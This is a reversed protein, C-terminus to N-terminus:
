TSINKTHNHPIKTGNTQSGKIDQSARFSERLVIDAEYRSGGKIPDFYLTMKGRHRGQGIKPNEVVTGRGSLFSAMQKRDLNQGYTIRDIPLRTIDAIVLQNTYDTDKESKQLDLKALKTRELGSKSRTKYLVSGGSRLKERDDMSFPYGDFTKLPIYPKGCQPKYMALVGGEESLIKSLHIKGPMEKGDPLTLPYVRDTMLGKELRDKEGDELSATKVGFIEGPKQGIIESLPMHPEKGTRIEMKKIPDVEQKKIPMNETTEHQPAAFM